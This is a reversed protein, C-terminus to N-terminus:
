EEENTPYAPVPKTRLMHLGVTNLLTQLRFYNVNDNDEHANEQHNTM